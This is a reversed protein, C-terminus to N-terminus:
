GYLLRRVANVAHEASELVHYLEVVTSAQLVTSPEPEPPECIGFVPRGFELALKIENATGHGGGVAIACSAACVIVRNRSFDAHGGAEAQDRNGLGTPLVISAFPNAESGDDGPLIGLSLGGAEAVGACAAEMVGGRGGCIVALGLGALGRGVTRSAQYQAQTPNATGIVAVPRLGTLREPNLESM